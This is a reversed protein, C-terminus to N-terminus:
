NWTAFQTKVRRGGQVSVASPFLLSNARTLRVKYLGTYFLLLQSDTYQLKSMSVMLGARVSGLTRAPLDDM